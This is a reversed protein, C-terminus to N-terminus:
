VDDLAKIFRGDVRELDLRALPSSFCRAYLIRVDLAAGSLSSRTYFKDPTCQTARTTPIPGDLGVHMWTWHGAISSFELCLRDSQFLFIGTDLSRPRFLYRSHPYRLQDVAPCSPLTKGMSVHDMASCCPPKRGMPVHCLGVLHLALFRHRQRPHTNSSAVLVALHPAVSHDHALPLLTDIHCTGVDHVPYQISSFSFCGAFFTPRWSLNIPVM